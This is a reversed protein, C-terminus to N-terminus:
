PRRACSCAKARHARVSDKGLPHGWKRVVETIGQVSYEGPREMVADLASRQEATINLRGVGCGSAHKKASDFESLDVAM